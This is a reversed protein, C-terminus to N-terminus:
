EKLSKIYHYVAEIEEDSHAGLGAFPMFESNLVKGEPTSGTRFVTIFQELTWRGASGTLSIDPVPPSVPDLSKGGKLDKKHCDNCGHIHTLYSGYEVTPGIPVAPINNTTQHEILDYHYMDGFLGAGAMVQAMFTFKRKEFTREVEPLTNIYAILCGLDSDSMYSFSKCPMIMLKHGTKNLGHRVAKVFDQDTYHETESGKARTLNSSPLTGFQPDDFFVKGGLDVGHCSRCDVSLLRGREISVSDTPIEIKQPEFEIVNNFEKNFKASSYWSVLLVIVILGMLAYAILKLVRKMKFIQLQNFILKLFKLRFRNTCIHSDIIDM